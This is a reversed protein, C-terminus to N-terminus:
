LSDSWGLVELMILVYDYGGHVLASTTTNTHKRIVGLVLGLLFVSLLGDFNYQLAHLGTFFLNSLVIGLRPQLVGRVALEEGLGATVGIVVAGLPNIAFKLLAEFEKADTRPWGLWDWTFDIGKGILGMGLVLVVVLVPAAIVQWIRPVVLGVRRLAEPFNRTLPYGVAFIGAPVLWILGYITERLQLTESQTKGEMLPVLRLLPPDGLVLLPIFCIATLAVVTALATAHVFSRPDLPLLRAARERVAPLFCILGAAVSSGVGLFCVLIALAGGPLLAFRPRGGGKAAGQLVAPDMAAGVTLLWIILAAGGVLLLWWALTLGKAWDARLGAYALLTLPLFPLSELGAAAFAQSEEGFFWLDVYAIGGLIMALWFGVHAPEAPRQWPDPLAPPAPYAGEIPPYYPEAVPWQEEPPTSPPVPPIAPEGPDHM